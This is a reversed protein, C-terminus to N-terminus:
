IGLLFVQSDLQDQGVVAHLQHGGKQNLAAERDEDSVRDERIGGVEMALRDVHYGKEVDDLQVSIKEFVLVEYVVVDRLRAEQLANAVEVFQTDQFDLAVSDGHGVLFPGEGEKLEEAVQDM